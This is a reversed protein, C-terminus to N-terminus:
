KVRVLKGNQFDFIQDMRAIEGPSLHEMRQTYVQVRRDGFWLQGIFTMDWDTFPDNLFIVQSDPAARPNLARLQSIVNWTLVGERAAAPQVLAVKLNSMHRAWFLVGLGVLLALAGTRGLRSFLFEEALFRSAANALDTFIVAGFIAWGVLPIYLCGQVRDVLFEIPVPTLLMWAWCFRLAPRDRRWALYSVLLWIVLV